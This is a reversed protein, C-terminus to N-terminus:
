CDRIKMDNMETISAISNKIENDGKSSREELAHIELYCVDFFISFLILRNLSM